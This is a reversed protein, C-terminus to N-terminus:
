VVNDLNVSTDLNVSKHLSCEDVSKFWVISITMSVNSLLGGSDISCTRFTKKMMQYPVKLGANIHFLENVSQFCHVLVDPHWVPSCAAM